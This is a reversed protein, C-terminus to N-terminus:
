RRSTASLLKGVRYALASAPIGARSAYTELWSQVFGLAFAVDEKGAEATAGNLAAEKAKAHTGKALKSMRARGKATQTWHKHKM